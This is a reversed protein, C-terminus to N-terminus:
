CLIACVTLSHVVSAQLYSLHIMHRIALLAGCFPWKQEIWWLAIPCQVTTLLWWHLSPSLWCVHAAVSDSRYCTLRLQVDDAYFSIETWTETHFILLM